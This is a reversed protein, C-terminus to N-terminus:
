HGGELEYQFPHHPSLEEREIVIFRGKSGTAYGLDEEVGIWRRALAEAVSGTTNSGAFPDLVVDGVDTLFEIFFAAIEPRMRAPHLPHGNAECFDVYNSDWSTNSFRLVSMPLRSDQEDLDFVAPAIAGGHDKLFGTESIVHGSPRRGANYIGSKLLQKMHRTYPLLVKKNDAKPFANPAM